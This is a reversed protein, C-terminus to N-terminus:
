DCRFDFSFLNKERPFKLLINKELKFKKWETQVTINEWDKGPAGIKVCVRSCQCKSEQIILMLASVFALKTWIILELFLFLQM